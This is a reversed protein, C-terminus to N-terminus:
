KKKAGSIPERLQAAQEELDRIRRQAERADNKWKERSARVDRLEIEQAKITKRLGIVKEKWRLRGKLVSYLRAGIRPKTDCVTVTGADDM